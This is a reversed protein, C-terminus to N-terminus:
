CGRLCGRKTEKPRRWRVFVGSALGSNAIPYIALGGVRLREKTLTSDSHTGEAGKNSNYSEGNERDMSCRNRMVIVVVVTVAGVMRAWPRDNTGVGNRTAIIGQVM